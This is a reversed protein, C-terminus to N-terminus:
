YITICKWYITRIPLSCTLLDVQGKTQFLNLVWPIIHLPLFLLHLQSAKQSRHPFHTGGIWRLVNTCSRLKECCHYHLYQEARRTQIFDQVYNGFEQHFRNHLSYRQHPLSIQFMFSTYLSPLPIPSSFCLIVFTLHYKLTGNHSMMKFNSKVM